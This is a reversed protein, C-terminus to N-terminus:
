NHCGSLFAQFKSKKRPIERGAVANTYLMKVWVITVSGKRGIVDREKNKLGSHRANRANKKVHAIM